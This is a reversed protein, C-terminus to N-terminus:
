RGSRGSRGSWGGTRGTWFGCLRRRSTPRPSSAGARKLHPSTSTGRIDRRGYSRYQSGQEITSSLASQPLLTGFARKRHSDFVIYAPSVIGRMALCWCLRQWAQMTTSCSTAPSSSSSLQESDESTVNDEEDTTMPSDIVVGRQMASPYCSSARADIRSEYKPSCPVRHPRVEWHGPVEGLWPLGSEKYEAYPKLDAIM